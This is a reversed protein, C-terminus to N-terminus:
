ETTRDITRRRHPNEQRFADVSAHTRRSLATENSILALIYASTIFIALKGFPNSRKISAQMVIGGLEYKSATLLTYYQNGSFVFTIRGIGDGALKPLMNEFSVARFTGKRSKETKRDHSIM